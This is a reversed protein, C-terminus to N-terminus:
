SGRGTGQVAGGAHARVGGASKEMLGLAVAVGYEQPEHRFQVLTAYAGERAAGGGTWVELWRQWAIVADASTFLLHLDMGYFAAPLRREDRKVGENFVRCWEAYDKVVQARIRYFEDIGHTAEGIMVLTPPHPFPSPPSLSSCLHAYSPPPSPPSPSSPPTSPRTCAPCTPSPFRPPLLPPPFPSSTPHLHPLHPPCVRRPPLPPPQLHAVAAARVLSAPAAPIHCFRAAAIANSDFRTLPNHSPNHTQPPPPPPASQSPPHPSWLRSSCRSSFAHSLRAHGRCPPFAFPFIFHLAIAGCARRISIACLSHHLPLSDLTVTRLSASLLSSTFSTCHVTFLSADGSLYAEASAVSRVAESHVVEVWGRMVGWSYMTSCM